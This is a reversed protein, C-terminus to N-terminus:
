VMRKLSLRKVIVAVVEQGTTSVEVKIRSCKDPGTIKKYFVSMPIRFSYSVGPFLSLPFVDGGPPKVKFKIFELGKKDMFYLIPAEIEVPEKLNNDLRVIYIIDKNDGETRVTIKLKKYKKFVFFKNKGRLSFLFVALLLLLFVLLKGGAPQVEHTVQCLVFYLPVPMRTLTHFQAFIAM